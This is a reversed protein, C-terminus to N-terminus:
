IKKGKLDKMMIIATHGYEDIYHREIYGKPMRLTKIDKVIRIHGKLMYHPKLAM